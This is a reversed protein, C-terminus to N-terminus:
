TFSVLSRCNHFYSSATITKLPMEYKSFLFLLSSKGIFFFVPCFSLYYVFLDEARILAISCVVSIALRMFGGKSFIALLLLNFSSVSGHISPLFTPCVARGHM